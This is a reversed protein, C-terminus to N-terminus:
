NSLLPDLGGQRDLLYLDVYGGVHREGIFIQPVTHCGSKQVMEERRAPELDVLIETYPVRKAELLAKARSCFGCVRTSYLTVAQM